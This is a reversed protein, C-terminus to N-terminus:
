SRRRRARAFTSATASGALLMVVGYVGPVVAAGNGFAQSALAAAVAFDRMGIAFAGPVAVAAAATRRAWVVALLASGALFCAGAILATGLQHAGREGSLSAYVLVVVTLAAIGDREADRGRLGPAASRLAVGVALPLLVVVAFRGLLGAGGARAAAGHGGLWGIAVPGLVAALVLSGTVAGLAITADAGALAVLGVCAIESSSLGCALLGERVPGDFARGLGWGFATLAVFPAVSLLAVAALHGRLRGLDAVSIGLATALVLVALLLDTRGALAASPAILAIAAALLALPTLARPIAELTRAVGM